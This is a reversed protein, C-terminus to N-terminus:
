VAHGGDPVHSVARGSAVQANRGICGGAGIIARAGVVADSGVITAAGGGVLAGSGVAAGNDVIAREIRCHSAILANSGIACGAVVTFPEVRVHNRLATGPWLVAHPGIDCSKGIHVPGQVVSGARIVSGAGLTVPGTVQAGPEVAGERTDAVGAMLREHLLLLDDAEVVDLVEEPGARVLAWPKAAVHAAVATRLAFAHAPLTAVFEPPFRYAGCAVLGDPRGASEHLGAAWEGRATVVGHRPNPLGPAAVISPGREALLRRLVAASLWLDAPLAVVEKGGTIPLAQHLAHGPGLQNAQVVYQLKMGWATGDGLFARLREQGHGVVIVAEKVGLSALDVLLHEVLPRGAVPLLSKPRDHTLPRLRTGQGAALVVVQMVPSVGTPTM